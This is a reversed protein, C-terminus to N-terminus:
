FVISVNVNQMTEILWDSNGMLHCESSRRVSLLPEEPQNSLFITKLQSCTSLFRTSKCKNTTLMCIFFVFCPLRSISVKCVHLIFQFMCTYSTKTFVNHIIIGWFIGATPLCIQTIYPGHWAIAHAVVHVKMQMSINKMVSFRHM